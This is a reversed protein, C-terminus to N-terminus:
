LLFHKCKLSVDKPAAFYSKTIFVTFINLKRGRISLETLTQNRKKKSIMDAIMDDFAILLNCKRDPSHDEIIKYVRRVNVSCDIFCKMDEREELDIKEHKKFLININQKM